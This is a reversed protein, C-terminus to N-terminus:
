DAVEQVGPLKVGFFGEVKKLNPDIYAGEWVEKVKGDPSVVITDPTGRIGLKRSVARSKVFYVPFPASGQDIYEKLGIPVTALGVYRFRNSTAAVLTKVNAQNKKCWECAPSLVYLVTPRSDSAFSLMMPQGDATELPLVAPLQADIKLLAPPSSAWPPRGTRLMYVNLGLSLALMFILALTGGNGKVFDKVSSM